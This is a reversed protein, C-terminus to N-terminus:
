TCMQGLSHPDRLCYRGKSQRELVYARKLGRMTSENISTGLKASYKRSAATAGLDFAAKGMEARLQPSYVNNKTAKRKRKQKANQSQVVESVERNAAAIAHSPISSSLAGIPNPLEGKRKFFNLISM